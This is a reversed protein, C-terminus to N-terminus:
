RKVGFRLKQLGEWPGPLSWFAEDKNKKRKKEKKM